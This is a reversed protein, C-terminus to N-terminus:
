DAAATTGRIAHLERQMRTRVVDLLRRHDNHADAPQVPELVRLLVPRPRIYFQSKPLIEQTGDIVVPVIPVGFRVSLRFAGPFFKILEGDPSRTGEPFVFLSHGERLRQHCTRVMRMISPLHGRRLPVYRNLWMNWGLFPVYFNEVKSVWLFPTRLAFVALVDVMSQHNSVYICPGKAHEMGEVRIGALPAWALYHAGWRCTYWHLLRRRPDFPATVAFIVLAPAFLLVCSGLLYPWYFLNYLALVLTSTGEPQDRGEVDLAPEM